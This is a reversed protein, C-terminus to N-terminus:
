KLLVMKRTQSFTGATLKYVYLGSSNNGAEWTLKVAGQDVGSFEAIKQGSINYITLSYSESKPLDFTITTQPNFPNPYNQHLAFNTPLISGVTVDALAGYIDSASVSVLQGDSAILEGISITAALDGALNPAVLAYTQGERVGTLLTMQEQLLTVSVEGKFVFLAAGLETSVQYTGNETTVIDVKTEYPTLKPLPLADGVIIRILYVLDAVTLPIGDGNIESAAISGEVHTGFAALGSVFYETFMVADAIENELGNLNVDGRADISDACIIDIGGNQFTVCSRPTPKDDGGGVLCEAQTGQYTPFGASLDNIPNPNGYDYVFSSIYLTDGSLDAFTNDGCDMWYFRIPAFQCELTRDNSVLFCIEALQIPDVSSPGFCIPHNDGNNTEALAVLRLLGSPCGSGCNGTAGFRYTFYEWGCTLIHDGPDAGIPSLASADYAVLIDYGSIPKVSEASTISVCAQHGQIVNHVKEITVTPCTDCANIGLEVITVTTQCTREVGCEDRCVLTLVFDGEAGPIFCVSGNSLTAGPVGTVYSTDLNNDSDSCSFGSICVVINVDCVTDVVATPCNAEPAINVDAIYNITAMDTNDCDDTVTVQASLSNSGQSLNFCVSDGSLTGDGTITYTLQPKGGSVAPLPVCVQGAACVMGANTNSNGSFQPPTYYSVTVQTECTDALGCSDTAIARITYVGATDPTFCVNAGNQAGLSYTTMSLNGDPDSSSFPGVCIEAPGCLTVSSNAACTIEPPSNLAITVTTTCTSVAGCVDTCTLIIQNDGIVPTFCVENGTLTGNSVTSSDLNGDVDTCSFGSLCIESLDCVFMSVNSPTSCVPASNLAIDVCWSKTDSLGCSDTITLEGCVQGAATVEFCITSDTLDVIGISSAGSLGNGADLVSFPLCVTDGLDCIFQGTVDIGTIVPADNVTANVTVTATDADGCSDIVIVEFSHTGSSGLFVCIEAPAPAGDVTYTLTGGGGTATPVDVCVTATDCLAINYTADTLEPPAFYDVTVLTTCSASAGCADSATYIISYVGATDPTFCVEGASLAGLNSIESTINGDADSSSFASVCIEEPACLAFAANAACSVTPTSNLTVTVTTTCTSQAGCADTCTLIIENAGVVPTFCVEGANLTGNSVTESILNDDVDSCSFGSICIDSLDCVFMSVDAPATCTPATNLTIEICFDVTDALGCSDSIIVQACYLDSSGPVFCVTTDSANFWGLTTVGTLGNDPDAVTIKVCVTDTVDCIFRATSDVDTIVPATNVAANVTITATDARGCSDTVIVQQVIVTDGDLSYCVTDTKAVGDVTYTFPAAGGTVTPLDVCVVGSGCLGVNEVVDAISPPSIYDVTVTTTCTAQDGCADTATAIIMYVGATDPTFCVTGATETGLSYTTSTINGDADSSTFTGVCVEEPECLTVSTNAPCSVTPASNLTVTVTTTCTSQAGCADTCTLIIENAGVVPTFCVEGANLTGISVTESTLNGDVDSCSFGSICIDSLDCVFLAVDAPATCTPATNLTVTVTTICTDAAGCADTAILTITNAGAVPTFCVTEGSLTGNNVTVSVINGDADSSTFGDLCIESLDCVFISIDSPCSVVPASNLTVTVTTVCTDAKGCADTAILTITNAGAVPTFCVTEGSLTGNDVTVSVINGDADSSTFGALCIDSLDCVFYSIDSACSAVPASNYSITVTTECTDADGLADTVIYTITYVGATDPTFCVEGSTLVGLSVTESVINNQPDTASFSSVCVQEPECLFFSTPAACTVVPPDNCDSVTLYETASACCFDGPCGSTSDCAEVNIEVSDGVALGSVTYVVSDLTSSGVITGGTITWSWVNATSSTDRCVYTTTADSCVTDSSCVIGIAPPLCLVGNQISRDQNAGGGGDFDIARMHYPAGGVSASGNGIGWTDSTGVALHGGWYMGVSATSDTTFYVTINLERDTSTGTFSYPGVSDITANYAKLFRDPEVVFGSNVITFFDPPISGTYNASDSPDPFLFSDGFVACDPPPATGVSGCPGGAASIATADSLDYSTLYDYAHVGGKTWEMAITFFHSTGADTNSLFYRFPIDSGEAYCSNNTNINGNAWKAASSTTGNHLQDLNTPPVAFTVTVSDDNEGIASIMLTAGSENWSPTWSTQFVGNFDTSVQWSDSGVGVLLSGDTYTVKLTVLEAAQFTAGDIMAAEEPAYLSQRTSLASALVTSSAVATLLLAVITASQLSLSM